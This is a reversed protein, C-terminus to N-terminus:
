AGSSVYGDKLARTGAGSVPYEIQWNNTHKVRVGIQRIIDVAPDDLRFNFASNKQVIKRWLCDKLDLGHVMTIRSHKEASTLRKKRAMGFETRLRHLDRNGARGPSAGHELQLVDAAAHVEFETVGLVGGGDDRRGNLFNAIAGQSRKLEIGSRVAGVRLESRRCVSKGGHGRHILNKRTTRGGVRLDTRLAVPEETDETDGTTWPKATGVM